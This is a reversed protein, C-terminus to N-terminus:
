SSQQISKEIVFIYSKEIKNRFFWIIIYYIAPLALAILGTYLESVGLPLLIVIAALLLLLPAVYMLLVARMGLSMRLSVVVEEGIEWVLDPRLPADIMKEKKESMSCLGKASCAGCASHSVIEVRAFGKEISKITGQHRISDNKM